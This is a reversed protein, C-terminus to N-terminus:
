SAARKTFNLGVPLTIPPFLFIGYASAQDWAGHLCVMFECAAQGWKEDCLQSSVSGSSSGARCSWGIARKVKCNEAGGLLCQLM